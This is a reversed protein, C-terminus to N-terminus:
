LQHFHGIVVEFVVLIVFNDASHQRAVIRV